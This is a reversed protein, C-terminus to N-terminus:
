VNEIVEDAKDHMMIEINDSKSHIVREEDNGDRSFIFNIAITLQIKWKGFKKLNNIDKLNPKIKNFYEEVWLTKRDGKSTYEIQNNSWFNDVRALKFYCKEEYQFLNNIDRIRDKIAKTEKKLRFLNTAGKIAAYNTEKELKNSSFLNRVDEIKNQLRWSEM